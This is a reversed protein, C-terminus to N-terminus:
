VEVAVIPSHSRISRARDARQSSLTPPPLLVEATPRDKRAVRNRPCLSALQIPQRNARQGAQGRSKIRRKDHVHSPAAGIQISKDVASMGSQLIGRRRSQPRCAPDRARFDAEVVVAVAPSAVQQGPVRAGLAKEDDLDLAPNTVHLLHEPTEIHLDAEPRQKCGLGAPTRWRPGRSGEDEFVIARRSSHQLLM